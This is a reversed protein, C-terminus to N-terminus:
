GLKDLEKQYEHMRDRVTNIQSTFHNFYDVDDDNPVSNTLIAEVLAAQSRSRRQEIRLIEKKCRNIKKKLKRKEFM